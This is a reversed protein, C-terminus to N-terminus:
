VYWIDKQAQRNVQTWIQIISVDAQERTKFYVERWLFRWAQVQEGIQKDIQPPIQGRVLAGVDSLDYM